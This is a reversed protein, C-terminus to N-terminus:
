MAEGCTLKSLIWQRQGQYNLFFNATRLLYISNTNASHSILENTVTYNWMQLRQYSPHQRQLVPCGETRSGPVQHFDGLVGLDSIRFSGRWNEIFILKLYYPNRKCVSDGKWEWGIELAFGLSCNHLLHPNSNAPPSPAWPSEKWLLTPTLTTQPSSSCVLVVPVTHLDSCCWHLPFALDYFCCFNLLHLIKESGHFNSSFILLYPVPAYQPRNAVDKARKNKETSESPSRKKSRHKNEM